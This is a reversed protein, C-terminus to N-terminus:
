HGLIDDHKLMTKWPGHLTQDKPNAVIQATLKLIRGLSYSNSSNNNETKYNKNNQKSQSEGPRKKKM